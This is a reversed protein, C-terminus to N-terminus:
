RVKVAYKRQPFHVNRKKTKDLKASAEAPSLRRRIARTQKARLDLPLYKKNKYFLRLQSRQKLNIVTLVRAISKRIDHIRNLKAGSSNIKQIRLQGLDTKLEGLQKLLDEKSKSWLANAKVKSTSMKLSRRRDAALVIFPTPEYSKSFADSAILISRLDSACSLPRCAPTSLAPPAFIPAQSSAGVVKQAVSASEKRSLALEPDINYKLCVGYTYLWALSNREPVHLEPAPM